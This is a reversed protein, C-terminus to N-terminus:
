LKRGMTINSTATIDNNTFEWIKGSYLIVTFIKEIETGYETVLFLRGRGKPTDVEIQQKLELIIM